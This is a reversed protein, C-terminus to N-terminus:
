RLGNHSSDRGSDAYELFLCPNGVLEDVPGALEDVPVGLGNLSKAEVQDM